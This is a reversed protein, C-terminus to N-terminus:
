RNGSKYARKWSEKYLRIVEEKTPLTELYKRTNAKLSQLLEKNVMVLKMMNALSEIDDQKVFLGNEGDKVIQSVIGVDTTIVPLQYSLAEIVTLGYGEAQSFTVFCDASRYYAVVDKKWGCFDVKDSVGLDQALSQLKVLLPGDGVIVLRAQPYEGVIQSFARIIGRVNKIKVLRSVVLFVFNGEWEKKLSYDFEQYKLAQWDLFIPVTTIKDNRIEFYEEIRKKLLRGVVRVADARKLVIEAIEQRLLSMKEIGHVQIEVGIGFKKGLRLAVLGLYYIDQVSIVDIKHKKIIRKVLFYIRFFQCIKNRGGSGFVSFNGHKIEKKEKGPVVVGYWDVEKAYDRVRKFAPSDPSLINRDLGIVLIRM